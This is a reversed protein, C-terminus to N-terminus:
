LVKESVASLSEGSGKLEAQTKWIWYISVGLHIVLSVVGTWLQFLVVSYVTDLKIFMSYICQILITSAIILWFLWSFIWKRSMNMAYILSSLLYVCSNLCSVFVSGGVNYYKGGLIWLVQSKFFHTLILIIICFSMYVVVMFIYNRFIRDKTIRAFYPEVIVSTFGSALTFVQSLRGLAATEAINAHNGFYAIIWLAIQGQVAFFVAGPIQPRIFAIFDKQYEREPSIEDQIKLISSLKRASIFGMVWNQIAGVWVATWGSLFGGYYLATILGLRLFGMSNQCFYFEKILGKIKFVTLYLVYKLNYVSFIVGLFVLISYYIPMIHKVALFYFLFSIIALIAFTYRRISLAIQVYRSILGNDSQRNGVLAVIAYSFGVDVIPTMMSQLGFAISFEAYEAKSMLRILILGSVGVLAQLIVQGYIFNWIKKTRNILVSM